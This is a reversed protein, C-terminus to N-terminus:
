MWGSGLKDTFPNSHTGLPSPPPHQFVAQSVPFMEVDTVVAVREETKGVVPSPQTVTLPIQIQVCRGEGM